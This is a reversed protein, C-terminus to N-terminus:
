LAYKLFGDIIRYVADYIRSDNSASKGAVNLTKVNHDNIFDAIMRISEFPGSQALDIHLWPKELEDAFKGTQASGGTLLGHTFVVTADSYLVNQKTREPYGGTLMENVVYREDLPGAETLRGRGIWGGCPFDHAMAADIAAIDAGTQHGSIIKEM